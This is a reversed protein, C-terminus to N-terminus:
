HHGNLYKGTPFLALAALVGVSSMKLWFLIEHSYFTAGKGYEAVRFYGSVLILSLFVGYAINLQGLLSEDDQTMGPKLVFRQAVVAGLGGLMTVYHMYAMLATPVADAAEAPTAVLLAACAPALLALNDSTKSFAQELEQGMNKGNDSSLSGKASTQSRSLAAFKQNRVM